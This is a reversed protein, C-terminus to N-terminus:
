GAFSNTVTVAIFIMFWGWGIPIGPFTAVMIMGVIAFVVRAWYANLWPRLPKEGRSWTGAFWGAIIQIPFDILVAVALDEKPLGKEVLKLSTVSEHAQYAIKALFHMAFIRQIDTSSKLM